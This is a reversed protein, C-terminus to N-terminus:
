EEGREGAYVAGLQPLIEAALITRHCRAADACFCVLTVEDRALLRDWAARRLCYSTRMEQMYETWYRGWARSQMWRGALDEAANRAFGETEAGAKMERLTREVLAMSPAFALGDGTGRGRTVDLRDPGRYAYQATHVLLTM